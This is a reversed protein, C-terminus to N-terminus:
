WRCIGTRQCKVTAMKDGVVKRVSELRDANWLLSKIVSSKASPNLGDTNWLLWKIMLSQTSPNWDMPMEYNRWQFHWLWWRRSQPCIGTRQYTTLLDFNSIFDGISPTFELPRPMLHMESRTYKGVFHSVVQSFYLPYNFTITCFEFTVSM